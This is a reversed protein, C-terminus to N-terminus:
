PAVQSQVLVPIGSKALWGKAPMLIGDDDTVCEDDSDPPAPPAGEVGWEPRGWIRIKADPWRKVIRAKAELAATRSKFLVAPSSPDDAFWELKGLAWAVERATLPTSNIGTSAMVEYDVIACDLPESLPGSTMRQRSTLSVSFSNRKKM